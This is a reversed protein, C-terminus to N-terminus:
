RTKAKKNAEFWDERRLWDTLGSDAQHMLGFAAAGKDGKLETPWPGVDHSNAQGNGATALYLIHGVEHAAARAGLSSEIYAEKRDGGVIGVLNPDAVVNLNNVVFIPIKILSAGLIENEVAPRATDWPFGGTTANFLQPLQPPNEGPLPPPINGYRMDMEESSTVNFDINCQDKYANNLATQYDGSPLKGQLATHVNRSDRIYYIGTSLTVPDFVHAKLTSAIPYPAAKVRLVIRTGIDITATIGTIKFDTNEKTITADAISLKGADDPHPVIEFKAGLSNAAAGPFSLRVISQTKGVGVSTWHPTETSDWGKTVDASRQLKFKPSTIVAKKKMPEQAKDKPWNKEQVLLKEHNGIIYHLLEGETAVFLDPEKSGVPSVTITQNGVPKPWITFKASDVHPPDPANARDVM